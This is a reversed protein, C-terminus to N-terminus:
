HSLVEISLLSRASLHYSRSLKNIHDVWSLRSDITLGVSKLTDSSTIITGDIQINIPGIKAVNHANGLLIVQTKSVNLKMGNDKMWLTVIRLDDELKHILTNLQNPKGAIFLQTDDAFLICICYRVVLPLDNIYIKFILPGLVSGQPCGRLTFKVSSKGDKGKGKVDVNL